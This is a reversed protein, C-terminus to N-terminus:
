GSTVAKAAEENKKAYYVSVGIIIGIIVLIVGAVVLKLKINEWWMQNKLDTATRQFLHAQQQLEQAHEEITELTVCNALAIRINDEMQLKVTEVKAKVKYIPDSTEIDDYKRCISEFCARFTGDLGNDKTTSAKKDGNSNVFQTHLEELCDHACRTPYGVACIVIYVLEETDAILHWECNNQEFNYHREPVPKELMAELVKKVNDHNQDCQYFQSAVIIAKNRENKRTM